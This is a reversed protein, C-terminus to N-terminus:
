VRVFFVLCCDSKILEWGIVGVLGRIVTESQRKLGDPLVYVRGGAGTRSDRDAEQRVCFYFQELEGLREWLGLTGRAIIGILLRRKGGPM